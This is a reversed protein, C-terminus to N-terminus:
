RLPAFGCLACLKYFKKAPVEPKFYGCILCICKGPAVISVDKRERRRQAKANFIDKRQFAKFININVVCIFVAYDAPM